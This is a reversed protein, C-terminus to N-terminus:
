IQLFTKKDSESSSFGSTSGVLLFFFGLVKPHPARGELSISFIEKQTWL